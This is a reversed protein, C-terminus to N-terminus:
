QVQGQLEAARKEAALTTRIAGAVDDAIKDYDGQDLEEKNFNLKYVECHLGCLLAMAEAPGDCRKTILRMFFEMLGSDVIIVEENM